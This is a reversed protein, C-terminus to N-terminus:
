NESKKEKPIVEILINNDILIDQKPLDIILMESPRAFREFKKYILKDNVKFNIYVNNEPKKVRMYFRVSNKFATKNVKQPLVYGINRGCLLQVFNKDIKIIKKIFKAAIEGTLTGESAVNDVLDNVHLVNGCAFIGEVNTQFYNNIIPGRTKPDLEVGATKSLENEPILGVSLLLTDCEFSKESGKIPEWNEDVKSVVVSEVRDKGKIEIITHQLLLPIGFDDLCQVKNRILGSTYPLIEIVAKVEAGELTLRRAMIMGIDGSGLIVFKKGPMLGEINVLRQALGATYIGAPRTGPIRINGRTRERCGMALIIAKPKVLIAGENKNVALINKNPRIELVMTNLMIPIKYEMVKNIYRQAFEPGTLEEDFIGLGFGNHICQPLIGGLEFDREILLVNVGNEYASIAAALGAPGGGIIAIDTIYTKM